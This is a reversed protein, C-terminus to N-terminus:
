NGLVAVLRRKTYDTKPSKACRSKKEVNQKQMNRGQFRKTKEKKYHKERRTKGETSEQKRKMEVEEWKEGSKSKKKRWASPVTSSLSVVVCDASQAERARPLWLGPRDSIMDCKTNPVIVRLISQQECSNEWLDWFNCKPMTNRSQCFEGDWWYTQNKFYIVVRVVPKAQKLHQRRIEWNQPM